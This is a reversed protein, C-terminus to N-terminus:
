VEKIETVGGWRIIHLRTLIAKVDQRICIKPYCKAVARNVSYGKAILAFFLDRQPPIRSAEYLQHNAAVAKELDVKLLKVRSKRLLEEGRKTQCLALSIGMKGEETEEM